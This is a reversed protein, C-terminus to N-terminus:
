LSASCNLFAALLFKIDSFSCSASNIFFPSSACLLRKFLTGFPFFVFIGPSVAEPMNQKPTSNNAADIAAGIEAGADAM